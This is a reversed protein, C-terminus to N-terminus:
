GEVFCVCQRGEPRKKCFPKEAPRGFKCIAISVVIVKEKWIEQEAGGSNVEKVQALFNQSFAAM